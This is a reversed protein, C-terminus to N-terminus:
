EVLAACPATGVLLIVRPALPVNRPHWFLALFIIAFVRRESTQWCKILAGEDFDGDDKWGVLDVSRPSEM